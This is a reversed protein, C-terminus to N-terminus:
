VDVPVGREASEVAAHCMALSRINDHCEGPPVSGTRVAAVFDALAGELGM